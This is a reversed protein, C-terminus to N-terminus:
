SSHKRVIERVGKVIRPAFHDLAPALISFRGRNAVELWIAHPVDEGHSLMIGAFQEPTYVREAHLGAEAAGTQNQWPHNAKMWAEAEPALDGMLQVIDAIIADIKRKTLRPWTQEPTLQWSFTIM